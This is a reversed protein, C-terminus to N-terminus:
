KGKKHKNMKRGQDAAREQAQANVVKNWKEGEPHISEPETEFGTDHPSTRKSGHTSSIKSESRKVQKESSFYKKINEDSPEKPDTEPEINQAKRIEKNRQHKRHHPSDKM